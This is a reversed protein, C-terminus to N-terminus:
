KRDSKLKDIIYWMEKERDVRKWFKKLIEKGQKQVWKFGM